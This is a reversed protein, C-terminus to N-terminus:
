DQYAKREKNLEEILEDIETETTNYNTICARFTPVNKIPYVSIWSNGKALINDLITKTFNADSEFKQHTFCIVPLETSNKIIWNNETLKTRLYEGMKAQHNIVKEYGNWGYFLLSSYVKLGIFRRSWQISHSFPEVIELENAEKPMYETTIRFTKNLIDQHSTLFISTGMPVSM